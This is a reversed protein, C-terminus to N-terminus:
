TSAAEKSQGGRPPVNNAITTPGSHPALIRAVARRLQRAYMALVGDPDRSLMIAGLGFLATPVEAFSQPVYNQFLAPVIVFSLGAVLAAVNSRIGVTVLVAFWTLGSFTNFVTPDAGGLYLVLMGGGLAAIFAAGTSALMKMQVVSLGITESGPRSWRAAALGLGATSHRLNEILIAVVVFLGIAVFGFAKNGVVFQPRTVLIGSDFNSFVNLSFVLNDMLVGFTLTVLAVYLGGLRTTLYGIVAGAPVALLAAVFLALLIPWHETTALYATMVAGVGAFSVQCLWIMGGEGTVLTFSLFVIGFCIGEVFLGTWYTSLIALLGCAVAIAALGGGSRGSILRSESLPLAPRNETRESKYDRRSGRGGAPVIARDLVGGLHETEQYIGRRTRYVLYAIIFVFPLSATVGGSFASTPPILYQAFSIFVGLVLSVIVARGIHVLNALLVACFASTILITYNQSTLGIIPAVMVGVLGALMTTVASVTVAVVSPNAGVMSAMAPSDVTARMTLGWSTLKLILAGVILVFCVSALVIVQNLTIGVGFVLYSPAPAPILGPATTIAPSGYLLITVAPIVVSLGVTAVIKILTAAHTLYRLLVAWLLVGLAPAIVFISLIASLAPNWNHQIYLFYYTRAIFFAVAAYSFNLIGSSIYTVVLGTSALAYIGGLVVGSILYQLV